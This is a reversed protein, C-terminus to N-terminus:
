VLEALVGDRATSLATLRANRISNELDQVAPVKTSIKLFNPTYGTYNLRKDGSQKTPGEWLIPFTRGIHNKLSTTKMRNALAHLAKSRQKKQTGTLKGPLSAAKTGQRASFSFIHIHSFGIKEIFELGQQWEYPTEGPFGIIIDTTVNFDTITSRAKKILREYDSTRCRRAMRRLVSDSGSQLPLHIHPMLRPNHFLEFFNEPLDWPEVSALRLRPLDTDALIARILESLSSSFDSGYGGVHVGTLVAEKIGQRVLTNIEHVIDDISRSREEGRALTVVCYSCRYRCGDQIKIFARHLGRQFLLATDPQTASTPMTQMDFKQAVLEPLQEKRHNPVLLDIGPIELNQDQGLSVYCGSIVLKALPNGRRTRRIIQRSKRVAEQTVACTNIVVLDATEPDLTIRHGQAQFDQAWRELEAENLRCGLTRLNIQM